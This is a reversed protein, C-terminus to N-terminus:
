ESAEKPHKHQRIHQILKLKTQYLKSELGVPYQHPYLFRKIGDHFESLERRTNAQVDQLSPASYCLKGKRVIPVLLDRSEMGKEFTMTRTPDFPDVMTLTPDLHEMESYIVDGVTVGDQYFRRVQLLGPNSIKAMQESLKLTNVWDEGPKRWASLKYVGDLAPQDKATVLNTGVGWVTIKAGQRKLERILTEDLENSAVIQADPFGAEDLLERAQKSLYGLDGSDLRVGLMESGQERLWRGVEIAKKVGEITDYTDVLFVCNNPLAKAYSYFAEIEEEFVMVWSHAHTGAVPIGFLKGALVNSTADCGGIYAARSASLAGDIGQARRLGFELVRDEGAALKTRAGKTAILTHFNIINLLPTELLQAQAIPGIVRLMPEYPFVATGEPMADIDCELKMEHLYTLFGEEFMPDDNSDKITSLYDCDETTFRFSQIFDVALELGAAIAFGGQFPRRRFFLHFAAETDRMGTKWYGYAMTLQYLDTLLAMSHRELVPNHYM